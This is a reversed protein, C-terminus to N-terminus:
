VRASRLVKSPATSAAEGTSATLTSALFRAVMTPATSTTKRIAIEAAVGENPEMGRRDGGCTVQRPFGCIAQGSNRQGAGDMLSGQGRLAHLHDVMARRADDEFM